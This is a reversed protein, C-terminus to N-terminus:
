AKRYKCYKFPDNYLLINLNHKKKVEMPAGHGPRGWFTQWTEYHQRSIEADRQLYIQMEHHRQTIQQNLESLYGPDRYYGSNIDKIKTVDTTSLSIPRPSARRKALLPVLEVGGTFQTESQEHRFKKKPHYLPSGKKYMSKPAATQIPKPYANKEKVTLFDDTKSKGYRAPCACVCQSCCSTLLANEKGDSLKSGNHSNNGNNHNNNSSSGNNSRRTELNLPKIKETANSNTKDLKKLVEKNTWGLSKMFNHGLEKPERWPAGGPCPKGWPQRSNDTYESVMPRNSEFERLGRREELRKALQQTSLRDLEHRYEAQEIPGKKYRLAIDVHDRTPENFSILPDDKYQTVIKGSSDRLPAGGGGTETGRYKYRNNTSQPSIPTRPNTKPEPYLGEQYLNSMRISKNPAGGGKRGWPNYTEIMRKFEEKDRLREQYRREHAQRALITNEEAWKMEAQKKREHCWLVPHTGNGNGLCEM